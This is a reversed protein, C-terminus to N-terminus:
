IGPYRRGPVGLDSGPVNPYEDGGQTINPYARKPLGLDTGPSEKYVDGDPLPYARKPLGLDEGPVGKYQDAGSGNNPYVRTPLGLDEGPVNKYADGSTPQYIRRPVGLDKGPVDPYEDASIGPYNRQPLGLDSGPTNAYQDGITNVIPPNQNPPYQKDNVDPYLITEDKYVDEKVSPYDRQPLGLDKGPVEKYEDGKVGEYVIPDDKYVDSLTEPTVPPITYLSDKVGPYTISEDKYTDESISPYVRKPVGLDKGPVDSYQDEKISEYARDPLGLDTGPVNLYADEKLTNNTPASGPNVNGLSGQAGGNAGDPYVDEKVIPYQREGPGGLGKSQPDNKAFPNPIGAKAQNVISQVSSLANRPDIGGLGYINGLLKGQLKSVGLDKLGGLSNTIFKSALDAAYQGPNAKDSFTLTSIGANGSYDMENYGSAGPHWTDNIVMSEVGDNKAILDALQNFQIKHEKVRGVHISFKTSVATPNGKNDISSGFPYTEDFDFECNDFQYVWAYPMMDYSGFKASGPRDEPDDSEFMEKFLGTQSSFNELFNAGQAVSPISFPNLLDNVGGQSLQINRIETVVMWMRFKRLNEPLMVRHNTYDYIAKRYLEALASIRMDISELCDVTLTGARKLSAAAKHYNHIPTKLLTELGTVSQFYYPCHKNIFDLGNRFGRIMDKRQKSRVGLFDQAGMYSISHMPYAGAGILGPVRFKAGYFFDIDKSFGGKGRIKDMEYDDLKDGRSTEKNSLDKIYNSLEEDNQFEDSNRFLPSPALFTEPDIESGIAFDFIFKFSLYTPDEKKAHRHSSIGKIFNNRQADIKRSLFKKPDPTLNNKLGSGLNSLFDAM